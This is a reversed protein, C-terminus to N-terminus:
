LRGHFRLAELDTQFDEVDYNVSLGRKGLEPAFCLAPETKAVSCTGPSIKEQDYFIIAIELKLEAKTANVFISISM